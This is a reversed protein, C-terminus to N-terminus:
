SRYHIDGWARWLLRDLAVTLCCQSAPWELLYLLHATHSQHTKQMSSTDVQSANDSLQIDRIVGTEPHLMIPYRQGADILSVQLGLVSEVGECIM